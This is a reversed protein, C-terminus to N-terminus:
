NVYNGMILLQLTYKYFTNIISLSQKILNKKLSLKNSHLIVM